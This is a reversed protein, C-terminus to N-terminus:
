QKNTKNKLNWMLTFDHYKDWQNIESLMISELEMWTMALPLIENNEIASYNYVYAVDEKDLWRNISLQAGEMTQCNYIISSYVYPHMYRKLNTNKYEKPLYVTTFDSSWITIRNKLKKLFWISTIIKLFFVVSTIHGEWHMKWPTFPILIDWTINFQHRNPKEVM